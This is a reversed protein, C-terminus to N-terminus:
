AGSRTSNALGGLEILGPLKAAWSLDEVGNAGPNMRSFAMLWGVGGLGGWANTNSVQSLAHAIKDLPIGLGVLAIVLYEEHRLLGLLKWGDLWGHGEIWFSWRRNQWPPVKDADSLGNPVQGFPLVRAELLARMGEQPQLRAGGDPIAQEFAARPDKKWLDRLDKREPEPPVPDLVLRGLGDQSVEAETVGEPFRLEKPIRVCQSNGSWFVTTRM